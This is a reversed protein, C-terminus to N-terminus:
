RRPELLDLFAARVPAPLREEILVFARYSLARYIDRADPPLVDLHRRVVDVDGRVVPGTLAETLGRAEAGRIASRALPALAALAETESMGAKAFAQAAASLLCVVSGAALVASAHYATRGSEPVELPTLGLDGAMGRLLTLLSPSSASLAVAHGALPDEPSSVAVLPHFSGRPRDASFVDLTLAGACHVQATHPGLDPEVKRAMEGIAGDPVAYVCLAASQLLEHEALHYGGEAARKVSADSRPFVAVPWRAKALARALAGGLRGFGVIVVPRRAKSRTQWAAKPSKRSRAPRPPSVRSM